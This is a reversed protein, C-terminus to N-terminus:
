PMEGGALAAAAVEAVDMVRLPLGRLKVSDELCAICHPCATVLVQAGTAAAEEVRLHSLRAHAETELWMRGGGGGCCLTNPGTHAMEKLELQPIARLIRRPEEVV